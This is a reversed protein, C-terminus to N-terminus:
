IVDGDDERQCYLAAQRSLTRRAASADRALRILDVIQGPRRMVSAIVRSIVIRGRDDLAVLSAPPLARDAPDAIARMAAFPIERLAAVRAVGVSELDVAAAATTEYLAAKEASTKAVADAGTLREVTAGGMHRVLEPDCRYRTQGSVIWNPILLSGPRLGPDLGGALGFSVLITAGRAIARLAAQQVGGPTGGGAEVLVNFRALLRAEASLGTVFGIM